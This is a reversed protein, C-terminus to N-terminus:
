SMILGQANAFDVVGVKNKVYHIMAMVLIKGWQGISKLRIAVVLLVGNRLPFQGMVSGMVSIPTIGHPRSLKRSM